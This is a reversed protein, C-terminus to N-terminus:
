FGGVVSGPMNSGSEDHWALFFIETVRKKSHSDSIDSDSIDM